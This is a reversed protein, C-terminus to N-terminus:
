QPVIAIAQSGLETYRSEGLDRLCSRARGSYPDNFYYRKEDYGTLVLCHEHTPWTYTTGDPLIWSDKYEPTTMEITAWVLVPIGNSVYRECLEPMTLGTASRVRDSSGLVSALAKEIVPAMCGYANASRPNGLFYEYPSPGYKQGDKYYFESSMPLHKDVFDAVSIDVGAYRLAMVAATSECGSPFHAQQDIVPVGSIRYSPPATSGADSPETTPATTATTTTSKKPLRARAWDLITLVQETEEATMWARGEDTCVFGDYTNIRYGTGYETDVTYPADYEGVEEAKYSLNQLLSTLFVSNEGSFSYEEGDEFHVTTVTDDSMLFAPMACGSLLLSMACVILGFRTWITKPLTILEKLISNFYIM